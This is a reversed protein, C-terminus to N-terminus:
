SVQREPEFACSGLGLDVVRRSAAPMRPRSRRAVFASERPGACRRPAPDCRACGCTKRMSPRERVRRGLESTVRRGLDRLQGTSVLICGGRSARKDIQGQPGQAIQASRCPQDYVTHDPLPCLQFGHCIDRHKGVDNIDTRHSRHRRSEELGALMGYRPHVQPDRLARGSV